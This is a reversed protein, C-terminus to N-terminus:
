FNMNMCLLTIFKYVESWMQLYRMKDSLFENYTHQMFKLPDHRYSEKFYFTPVSYSTMLTHSSYPIKQLLILYVAYRIPEKFFTYTTTFKSLLYIIVCIDLSHNRNHGYNKQCGSTNM